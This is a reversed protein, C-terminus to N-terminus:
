WGQPCPLDEPVSLMHCCCSLLAGACDVVLASKAPRRSERSGPCVVLFSAVFLEGGIGVPLGGLCWCSCLAGAVGAAGCLLSRGRM